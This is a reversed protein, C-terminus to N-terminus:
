GAAILALGVLAVGLGILQVRTVREHVVWWALAVTAAPALSAVPAVEVIYGERVAVLILTAATIDLLGAGAALLRDPGAPFRVTGRGRLVLVLALVLVVSVCRATLLPWMGSADSTKAYFIFSAGLGAGAAIAILVARTTGEDTHEDRTVGILAGAAIALVVGALVTNSPQGDEVIGWTVPVVAGVVATVPAVVGMRGTALGLYLLGLGAVNLGGAIAGNVLDSRAVDASVVVAVVLAGVIAVAQAVLLVAPTSSRQSARGGLFDGSGFAAAVLLGLIVAM